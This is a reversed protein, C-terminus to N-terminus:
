WVSREFKSFKRDTCSGTVKWDQHFIKPGVEYHLGLMRGHYALNFTCSLINLLHMAFHMCVTICPFSRVVNLLKKWLKKACKFLAAGNYANSKFHVEYIMCSNALSIRILIQVQTIKMYKKVLNLSFFLKMLHKLTFGTMDFIPIDGRPIKEEIKMRVDSINFFMKAYEVFDFKDPNPDLLHSIYVQYGEETKRPLPFVCRFHTFNDKCIYTYHSSYASFAAWWAYYQLVTGFSILSYSKRFHLSAHINIEARFNHIDAFCILSIFCFEFSGRTKEAM